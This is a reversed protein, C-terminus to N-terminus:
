AGSAYLPQLAPTKGRAQRALQQLAVEVGRLATIVATKDPVRSPHKGADPNYLQGELESILGFAKPFRSHLAAPTLAMDRAVLRQWFDIAALASRPNGAKLAAEASDLAAQRQAARSPRAVGRRRRLLVFVLGAAIVAAFAAGAAKPWLPPPPASAVAVPAIAATPAASAALTPGVVTITAEPM